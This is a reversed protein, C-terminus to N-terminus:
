PKKFPGGGNGRGFPSPGGKKFPSSKKTEAEDAKEATREAVPPPLVTETRDEGRTVSGRPLRKPAASAAEHVLARATRKDVGYKAMADWIAQDAAHGADPLNRRWGKSM